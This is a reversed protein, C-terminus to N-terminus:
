RSESRTENPPSGGATAAQAAEQVARLLKEAEFPKPIYGDMGARLCVEEDGRMANATLALIPRHGGVARELARIQRTAELGDLEPMQVDMLIVDFHERGALEVAKRGDEVSVVEHGQRTMLLEVLRRNVLNDEALLIRLKRAPKSAVGPSSERTGAAPAPTRAPPGAAESCAGVVIELTFTSGKGPESEVRIEGGMLRALRSSIALGLGTGGFRRTISGDAQRFAEFIADQQDPPIGIGTDAVHFRLLHRTAGVPEAELTVSVGGQETFKVANNLLNLLIQFVRQEDGVVAEPVGDRVDLALHLGKEVARPAVASMAQEVVQRPSFREQQIELYGAEIKSLDLIDNLLHLLRNASVKVTELYERQEPTLETSLTLDTMGLIGNMPTRIEHSINALFEDKLRNARESREKEERLQRTREEVARELRAKEREHRVRSQQLYLFVSSVILLIVLTRFLWHAWWPPRIRFEFVAPSESWSGAGDFGRVELRYNGPPLDPFQVESLRTEKWEDSLGVLRYLYRHASPRAFRLVAFQVTLTNDSYRVEPHDEPTVLQRGLRVATIVTGPAGPYPRAPSEHFRSLGGSTGIWVTGDPEAFFADTNCDDWVLGDSRRYQVWSKGDYVAVGRDTGVWLHGRSDVRAFYTLASPLGDATTFHRFSLRGDKWVGRTLGAPINYVLWVEGAPGFSVGHVSDDLLGDKKTYHEWRGGAFRFLGEEAGVWVDGARGAAVTLGKVPSGSPLPIETIRGEADIAALSPRGYAVAYVRGDEGAALRMIDAGQETGPIRFRRVTGTRPDRRTLLGGQPAAWIAGDTSQTMAIMAGRPFEAARRFRYVGATKEGRYVGDGTGAWVVGRSDVVVQWVTENALGEASSYSEWEGYGVWRALGRGNMGLWVNGERDMHVSSVSDGPLGNGKGILQWNKGDYIAIGGFVPILLRGLFDGGMQPVWPSQLDVPARLPEFRAAGKRLVEITTASRVYVNGHIDEYLFSWPGAGPTPQAATLQVRDRSDLECLDKACGFLVRGSRTVMVGAVAKARPGTAGTRAVLKFVWDGAPGRREGIVLGERTAIYLRGAADSALGSKGNVRQGEPGPLPVLVFGQRSSRYLGKTTGLWLAGDPTQHISLILTGPALDKRGFEVFSKGDFRFLGNQTGVWLFGVQDQFISEVALNNLGSDFDYLQFFYQQGALPVWVGALVLWLLFRARSRM